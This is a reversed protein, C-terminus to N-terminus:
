KVIISESWHARNAKDKKLSKRKTALDLLLRKTVNLFQNESYINNQNNSELKKDYSESIKFNVIPQSM